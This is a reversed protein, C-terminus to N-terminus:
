GQPATQDDCGPLFLCLALTMAAFGWFTASVPRSVSIKMEDDASLAPPAGGQPMMPAGLSNVLRVETKNELPVEAETDPSLKPAVVQLEKDETTRAVFFFKTSLCSQPEFGRKEGVAFGLAL